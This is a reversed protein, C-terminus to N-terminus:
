NSESPWLDTVEVWFAGLPTVTLRCEVVLRRCPWLTVVNRKFKLVQPEGPRWGARVARGYRVTRRVCREVEDQDWDNVLCLAFKKEHVRESIHIVPANRISQVFSAFLGSLEEKKDFLLITNYRSNYGYYQAPIM